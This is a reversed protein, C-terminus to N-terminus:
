KKGKKAKKPVEIGLEGAIEKRLKEVEADDEEDYDEADVDLEKDDILEALEEYDMDQLDDYTLDDEEEEEDDDEGDEDEEDGDEEEEEDEEKAPAKKGGKKAPKEEEEEEAEDETDLQKVLDELDLDVKQYIAKTEDEEQVLLCNGLVALLKFESKKAM